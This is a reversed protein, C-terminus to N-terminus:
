RLEKINELKKFERIARIKEPNPKVIGYSAM